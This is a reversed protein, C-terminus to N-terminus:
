MVHDRANAFTRHVILLHKQIDKTYKIKKMWSLKDPKISSQVVQNSFFTKSSNLKFGLNILVSTLAKLIQEGDQPNNVFIRYDDRYRLIQYDNVVLKDLEFDLEQDAYGLIMEAIFDMLVSGQPIGNTQGYSMDQLHSDIIVGIYKKNKRNKPEKAVTKTHLAWAITHTYISAYCDTIDSQITYEYDLALEISKQEVDLWWSSVQEAKDTEDTLSEGPISLCKIRPNMSFEKFRNVIMDWHDTETITHVLSVYIAPHILHMPRWAYKGDKNNFIIHNIKEMESPHTGVVSNLKKNELWNSVDRLLETFDIYPPLDFDCYSENKLFFDKAEANSLELISRRTSNTEYNM